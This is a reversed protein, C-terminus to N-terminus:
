VRIMRDDDADADDDHHDNDDNAQQRCSIPPPTRAAVDKLRHLADQFSQVQELPPPLLSPSKRLSGASKEMSREDPATAHRQASEAGGPGASAWAPPRRPGEPIEGQGKKNTRIDDVVFCTGRAQTKQRHTM